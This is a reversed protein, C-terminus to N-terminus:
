QDETGREMSRRRVAPHLHGDLSVRLETLNHHKNCYDWEHGAPGGWCQETPWWSIDSGISWLYVGVWCTPLRDDLWKLARYRLVYRMWRPPTWRTRAWFTVLKSM